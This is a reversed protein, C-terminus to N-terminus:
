RGSDGGPPPQPTVGSHVSDDPAPMGGGHPDGMGQDGTGPHGPPMESQPALPASTVKLKGGEPTFYRLEGTGNREISLVVLTDAKVVTYGGALSATYMPDRGMVAIFADRAPRTGVTDWFGREDPTMSARSRYSMAILSDFGLRMDRDLADYLYGYDKKSAAEVLSKYAEVPDETSSDSCGTAIFTALALAGLMSIAKM